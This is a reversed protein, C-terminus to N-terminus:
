GNAGTMFRYLRRCVSDFAHRDRENQAHRWHPGGTEDIHHLILERAPLTRDKEEEENVHRILEGGLVWLYDAYKKVTKGARDQQILQLLFPKFEEVIREGVPVDLEPFGAWSQPWRDLDKCYATLRTAARTHARSSSHKPM